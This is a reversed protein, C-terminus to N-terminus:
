KSKKSKQTQKPAYVFREGKNISFKFKTKTKGSEKVFKIFDRENNMGHQLFVTNPNLKDITYNVGQKLAVKDQFRCGTIPLFAIDVQDCCKALYDIERNHEIPNERDFNAHDGSHYISVGDAEVLFAVGGDTSVVPNVRVGNITEPKRPKVFTYDVDVEDDFGFVYNINKVKDKWEFIRPDYHDRHTHSVFVTVNLDKLEDPNIYGNDIFKTDLNDKFHWYDFILLNNKTKVAWGSHELYWVVAEGQGLKKSLYNELKIGKKSAGHAVLAQATHNNKHYAAYYLPTNGHKDKLEMNANAKLLAVAVPKFGNICALHLASRGYKDTVDVKANQAILLEAIEAEGERCALHLATMGDKNKNDLNSGAKLLIKASQINGAAVAAQLPTEGLDDLANVDAKAKLLLEIIQPNRRANHLPTSRFADCSVDTCKAPNVNAGAKIMNSILNVDNSWTAYTLPTNGSNDTANIDLGEAVLYNIMELRRAMAASHIMNGERHNKSNLDMGKNVLYKVSEIQGFEVASELATGGKKNKTNPDFGKENILYDMMEPNNRSAAYHLANDGDIDSAQIDLGKKEFIKMMDVNGGTAAYLIMTRNGESPELIKMGKKALYKLMEMNGNMAAYHHIKSGRNTKLELNAGADALAKVLEFNDRFAAFHIATLGTASKAELDAGSSILAKAIETRSFNAAFVLPSSGRPNTSRILEKDQNLLKEVTPKDGTRIANFFAAINENSSAWSLNYTFLLVLAICLNKMLSNM